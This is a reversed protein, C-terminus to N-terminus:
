ADRYSDVMQQLAAIDNVYLTGTAKRLLKQRTLDSVVRAVTERTTSARSAIDNHLPPPSIMAANEGLRHARALRLLESTVRYPAGYVSLDVIRANSIRIIRVMEGILNMSISPYNSLAARFVPASMIGILSEKVAVVSASRPQNDIAAIEGFFQGDCLDDFCIHRGSDSYIMVEVRGSRIFFVDCGDSQHDIVQEGQHYVRWRCREALRDRDAKTMDKFLTIGDLSHLPDM